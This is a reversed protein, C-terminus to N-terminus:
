KAAHQKLQAFDNVEDLKGGLQLFEAILLLMRQVM